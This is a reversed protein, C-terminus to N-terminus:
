VVWRCTFSLKFHLSCQSSSPEAPLLTKRGYLGSRLEFWGHGCLLWVPYVCMACANRIEPRKHSFLLCLFIELLEKELWHLCGHLLFPGQKLSPPIHPGSVLHQGTVAVYSRYCSWVWMWMRWHACTHVYYVCVCVHMILMKSHYYFSIKFIFWQSSVLLIM